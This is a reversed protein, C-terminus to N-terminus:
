SFHNPYRPATYRWQTSWTAILKYYTLEKILFIIHHM